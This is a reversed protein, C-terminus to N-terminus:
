PNYWSELYKVLKVPFGPTKNFFAKGPLKASNMSESRDSYFTDDYVQSAM